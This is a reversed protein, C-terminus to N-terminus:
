SKKKELAKKLAADLTANKAELQKIRDTLVEDQLKADQAEWKELQKESKIAKVRQQFVSITGFLGAVWAGLMLWCPSVTAQAGFLSLPEPATNQAAVAVVLLGLIVALGLVIKQLM